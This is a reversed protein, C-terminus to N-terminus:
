GGGEGGAVKKELGLRSIERRWRTKLYLKLPATLILTAKALPVDAPRRKLVAPRPLLSFGKRAVAEEEDGGKGTAVILVGGVWVKLQTGGPLWGPQHQAGEQFESPIEAPSHGGKTVLKM